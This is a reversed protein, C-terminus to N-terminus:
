HDIRYFINPSRTKQDYIVTLNEIQNQKNVSLWVEAIYFQRMTPADGITLTQPMPYPIAVVNEKGNQEIATAFIETIEVGENQLLSDIEPSFIRNDINKLLSLNM